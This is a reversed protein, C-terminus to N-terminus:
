RVVALKQSMRTFLVGVPLTLIVFGVAIIFFSLFLLDPRFEIMLKMANSAEIASVTAVVTTNKTLAILTNGLPAIAGRMAQPLIVERITGVFSLGIARAAEAQGLPVTNIGSRIAEAVFSAHYIALGVVAWMFNQWKLDAGDPLLQWNMSLMLGFVCFFIVITLPTNRVLNVYATGFVRLALVPSVRLMAVVVGILFSGIAGFFTLLITFGFAQLVDFERVLEVIDSFIQM